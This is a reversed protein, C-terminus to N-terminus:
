DESKPRWSNNVELAGFPFVTVTMSDTTGTFRPRLTIAQATTLLNTAPDILLGRSNIAFDPYTGSGVPNDVVVVQSGTDGDPTTTDNLPMWPWLDPTFKGIDTFDTSFYYLKYNDGGRFIIRVTTNDTVAAQKMKYIQTTIERANQKLKARDGGRFGIRLSIGALIALFLLTLLMEVVSFGNSRKKIM